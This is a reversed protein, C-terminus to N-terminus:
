SALVIDFNAVWVADKVNAPKLAATVRARQEPSLRSSIPDTDNRPDGAFQLQTTLGGGGPLRVKYHIHPTRFDYAGPKVTRFRYLGSADTSAKGFGQFFDDRAGPSRDYTHIYRGNTDAQWIEVVAGPIPGGNADLIRGSVLVVEGKAPRALGSQQVLDADTDLPFHDPYYPGETLRPTPAPRTQARAAGTALLAAGGLILHRRDSWAM